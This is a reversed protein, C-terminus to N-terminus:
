CLAWFIVNLGLTLMKAFTQTTETITLCHGAVSVELWHSKCKVGESYHFAFLKVRHLFWLLGYLKITVVHKIMFVGTAAFSHDRLLRFPELADKVNKLWQTHLCILYVIIIILHFNNNENCHLMNNYTTKLDILTTLEKIM